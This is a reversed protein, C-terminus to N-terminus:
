EHFTDIRKDLNNFRTYEKVFVLPCTGTPGNRQKAVIVEAQGALSEDDRNYYEERHIFLVLDADQEIAGSERLHELRPRKDKEKGKVAARSLQSLAVVAVNFDKAIAKLERSIESVERNKSDYRKGKAASMLQLYDVFLVRVNAGTGLLRQLKVRIDMPTLMASDDIFLPADGLKLITQVIHNMVKKNLGYGRKLVALDTISQSALLRLALEEISMELSFFAVPVNREVALYAAINLAFATKGMSPRAGIVTLAKAQLGQTMEDLRTFGTPIDIQYEHSRALALLRVHLEKITEKLPVFDSRTVNYSIAVLQKQVHQFIDGLAMTEDASRTEIMDGLAILQRRVSKSKVIQIHETITELSDVYDYLSDLYAAGGAQELLKNEQLFTKLTLVDLHDDRQLMTHMASFIVRNKPLYFDEQSIKDAVIEYLQKVDTLIAGLLYCESDLSHPLSLTGPAM